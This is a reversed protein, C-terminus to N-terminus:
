SSIIFLLEFLNFDLIDLIISIFLNLRFFYFFQFKIHKFTIIYYNYIKVEMIIARFVEFSMLFARSLLPLLTRSLLPLLTRSLLPALLTCPFGVSFLFLFFLLPLFFRPLPLGQFLPFLGGRHGEYLALLFSSSSSVKM